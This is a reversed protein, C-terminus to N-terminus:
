KKLDIVATAINLTGTASDRIIITFPAVKMGKTALNFIYFGDAVRM